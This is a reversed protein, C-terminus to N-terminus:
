KNLFGPKEVTINIINVSVGVTDLLKVGITVLILTVTVLVLSPRM